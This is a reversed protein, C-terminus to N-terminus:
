VQRECVELIIGLGKKELENLPSSQEFKNLENELIFGINYYM